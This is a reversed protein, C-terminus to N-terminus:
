SLMFAIKEIKFIPAALAHTGFCASNCQLSKIKRLGALVDFKSDHVNLDEALQSDEIYKSSVYKQLAYNTM